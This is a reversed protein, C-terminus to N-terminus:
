AGDQRHVWHDDQQWLSYRGCGLLLIGITAYVALMGTPSLEQGPFQWALLMLIGLAAIRGGIGLLLLIAGLWLGDALLSDPVPALIFVAMAATLRMAPLLLGASFSRLRSFIAAVSPSGPDLRGSVVLWDLAFGALVPVMFGFGAPVTVPAGFPPWLVVAVYGMQFGALARRLPSPYLPQVPLRRRQRWATGAVFFYYAASVLLYSWHVKGMMVALIPAVLLGLADFVTDLQSGLLSVRASTRALYGDIRDLIAATSYLAAPVWAIVGELGPLALFGGTAAILLGRLLTLHNAMGLDPYPTSDEALRNLDRRQWAQWWVLGWFALAPLLWQGGRTWGLFPGMVLFGCLLLGAGLLASARLARALHLNGSSAQHQNTTM